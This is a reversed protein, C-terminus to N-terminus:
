KGDKLERKLFNDVDLLKLTQVPLYKDLWELHKLWRERIHTHDYLLYVKEIKKDKITETLAHIDNSTFSQPVGVTPVAVYDVDNINFTIFKNTHLTTPIGNMNTFKIFETTLNDQRAALTRARLSETNSLINAVINSKLKGTSDISNEELQIPVCIEAEGIIKSAPFILQLIGISIANAKALEEKTWQSGLFDPTNLLIVVDSDTMRHWLEEQFPEGPRISHTDLFVDFGSKELAEYLQIAISSSESRKYSIFLRRAQRLLGFGELISSTISPIDNTSQITVANIPHLESPLHNNALKLNSIVPLILTADAILVNLINADILTDESGFYLCYTPNNSSYEKEFNHQNLIKISENQIGLIEIQHFLDSTILEEYKTKKGLFILQYYTKM